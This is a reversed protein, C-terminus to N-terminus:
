ESKGEKRTLTLIEVGTETIVVTNEYHASPKGDKTRCEWGNIIVEHTGANIMPEIALTMGAELKLGTGWTGYNPVNPSEHLHTGIGHGVMERVVGFGHKEAHHQVQAGIDGLRSGAKIGKIGEFFCERTVRILKEKEESVKGIAFTRAADGHWGNKVAGCDVSLIMGEELIVDDSPFGHVVQDDISACISGPFGNYHLFNPKAGKSIIFEYAIKDLAKTSIGPKANAELLELMEAVIKGVERMQEIQKETKISVM